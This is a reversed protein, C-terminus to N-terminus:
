RSRVRGLKLSQAEVHARGASDYGISAVCGLVPVKDFNERAHAVYARGVQQYVTGADAHVVFGEHLQTRDAEKATHINYIGPKLDGAKDVKQNVWNGGSDELQVIRAGNMVLVRQKM